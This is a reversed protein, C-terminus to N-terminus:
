IIYLSYDVEFTETVLFESIYNEQSFNNDVKFRQNFKSTKASSDSCETYFCFGQSDWM